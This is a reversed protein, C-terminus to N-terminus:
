AECVAGNHHASTDYTNAVMELHMPSDMTSHYTSYLSLELFLFM